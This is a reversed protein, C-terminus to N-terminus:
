SFYFCFCANIDMLADHVISNTPGFMCVASTKHFNGKVELTWSLDQGM